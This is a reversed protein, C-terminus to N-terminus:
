ETAMLQPTFFEFNLVTEILAEFSDHEGLEYLGALINAYRNDSIESQRCDITQCRIRSPAVDFASGDWLRVSISESVQDLVDCKIYMDSYSFYHATQAPKSTSKAAAAIDSRTNLWGIGVRFQGNDECRIAKVCGQLSVDHYLLGVQQGIVLHLADKLGIGIGGISEDLVRATQDGRETTIVLVTDGRQYRYSSRREEADNKFDNEIM